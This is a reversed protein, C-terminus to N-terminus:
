IKILIIRWFEFVRSVLHKIMNFLSKEETESYKVQGPYTLKKYEKLKTLGPAVLHHNQTVINTFEVWTRDRLRLNCLTHLSLNPGDLTSM